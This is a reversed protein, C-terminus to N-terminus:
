VGVLWRSGNVRVLTRHETKGQEKGMGCEAVGGVRASTPLEGRHRCRAHHQAEGRVGRLM